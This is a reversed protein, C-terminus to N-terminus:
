PIEVNLNVEYASSRGGGKPKLVSKKVLDQLDRTATAKSTKTISIYKKASMGGEFGQPGEKLMRQVIRLQRENLQDRFYDFFRTKKLTFNILEETQVQADLCTQMFYEIWATIDNSRQASKLADYYARREAEITKSLSFLAPRGIGQLLAKESIARGIRGNGDEFPHISEFYLHAIGARVPPKNIGQPGGPTTKNFWNIFRQMEDPVVASPPAEFHVKERGMPGTIVQMPEEHTRWKGITIGKSGQMLMKHWDMLMKKTLRRAYDRRITIILQGAGNARQDRVQEQTQTIGLQNCISSRVDERSLYEGEIESTKIAESVMIDIMTETKINEPLGELLGSIRGVRETFEFLIDEAEGLTYTFRPWDSQQWNYKMLRNYDRNMENYM